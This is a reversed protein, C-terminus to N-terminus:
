IHIFILSNTIMDGLMAMYTMLPEYTFTFNLKNINFGYLIFIKWTIKPHSMSPFNSHKSLKFQVGYSLLHGHTLSYMRLALKYTPIIWPHPIIPSIKNHKKQFIEM